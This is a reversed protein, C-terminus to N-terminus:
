KDCYKWYEVDHPAWHTKMQMKFVNGGYITELVWLNPCLKLWFAPLLIDFGGNKNKWDDDVMWIM